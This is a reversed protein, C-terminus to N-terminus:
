VLNNTKRIFKGKYSKDDIMNLVDLGFLYYEGSGSDYRLEAPKGTQPDVIQGQILGIILSIFLKNM